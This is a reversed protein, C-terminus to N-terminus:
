YCCYHKMLIVFTILLDILLCIIGLGLFCLLGRCILAANLIKLTKNQKCERLRVCAEQIYSIGALQGGILPICSILKGLNARKRGLNKIHNKSCEQSLCEQTLRYEHFFIFVISM